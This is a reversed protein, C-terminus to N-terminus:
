KYAFISPVLKTGFVKFQDEMKSPGGNDPQKCLEEYQARFASYPITTEGAQTAELLTEYVFVYQEQKCFLVILM